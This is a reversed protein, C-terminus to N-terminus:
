TCKWIRNASITGCGVTATSEFQMVLILFWTLVNKIGEDQDIIYDKLLEIPIMTRHGGKEIFFL